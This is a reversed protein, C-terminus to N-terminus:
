KWEDFIDDDLISDILLRDDGNQHMKKFQDEWGERPTQTPRLEIHDQKMIVELKNGFGYRELLTKSLIIGKSNGINIIPTEV